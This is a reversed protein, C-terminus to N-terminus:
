CFVNLTTVRREAAHDLADSSCVHSSGNHPPEVNPTRLGRGIVIWLVVDNKEMRPVHLDNLCQMLAHRREALQHHLKQLAALLTADCCYGEDCDLQVYRTAPLLRTNASSSAMVKLKSVTLLTVARPNLRHMWQIIPENRNISAMSSSTGLCPASGALYFVQWDNYVLLIITHVLDGLPLHHSLLMYKRVMSSALKAYTTADRLTSALQDISAIESDRLQSRRHQHRKMTLFPSTTDRKGESFSGGGKEPELLAVM